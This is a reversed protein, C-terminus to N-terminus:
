TQNHGAREASGDIPPGAYLGHRVGAHDPVHRGVSDERRSDAHGPECHERNTQHQHSRAQKLYRRTVAAYGALGALSLLVLWFPPLTPAVTVVVVAHSATDVMLGVEKAFWLLPERRGHILASRLLREPAVAAAGFYCFHSLLHFGVVCWVLSSTALVPFALWWAGFLLVESAFFQWRTGGRISPEHWLRLMPGAHLALYLVGMTYVLYQWVSWELM